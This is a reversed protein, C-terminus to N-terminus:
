LNEKVIVKVRELDTPINAWPPALEGSGSEIVPSYSKFVDQTSSLPKGALKKKIEDVPITGIININGKANLVLAGKKTPSFDKINTITVNLNELGFATYSFPDFLAITQAGAFAEILKNEPFAIAHIVGQLSVTASTSGAEGTAVTGFTMTYNNDYMIYGEPTAKKAMELLSKTIQSKLSSTTSAMVASNVNKKVGSFGGAIATIPKAYITEYKPSGVYAVIKLNGIEGLSFNYNQGSQDAIINASIKGPVIAGASKTYGPIVISNSLRYLLKNEGSLRTGAILRVSQSSNSNYFTVKGTAKTNVLPGNTSPVTSTASEKLTIVEYSLGNNDSTGQAVFTSSVSIPIVKPIITFTAQSYYVSAFYGSVVIALIIIVTIIPWKGIKWRPREEAVPPTVPMRRPPLTVRNISLENEDKEMFVDEEKKKPAETEHIRNIKEVVEKEVGKKSSKTSVRTPISVDRIGRRERPIIDQVRKPM